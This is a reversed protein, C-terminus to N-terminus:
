LGITIKLFSQVAPLQSFVGGTFTFNLSGGAVRQLQEESMQVPKSQFAERLEDKTFEYGSKRAVAIMQDVDKAKELTGRLETDRNLAENLRIIEQKAM